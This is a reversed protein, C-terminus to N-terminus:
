DQPALEARLRGAQDALGTMTGSIETSSGAVADANELVTSMGQTIGAVDSRAEDMNRAIDATVANQEEVSAAVSGTRENLANITGGIGAISEVAEKTALQIEGVLGSIEDTARATETALAKVESAVIAFGRGADGARAAEITANLALLDTQGAIKHILEVVMGVRESTDALNGITQSTRDSSEVAERAITSSQTVQHNIERIAASLEEAAAAVSEVNTLANTAGTVANSSQARPMEASQGMETARDQCVKLAQSLSEVLDGFVQMKHGIGDAAHNIQRSATLFNGLMGDEVIRRFHRNKEVYHLCARSERIYADMRDIMENLALALTRERGEEVPVDLVRAEFDGRCISHCVDIMDDAYTPSITDEAPAAKRLMNFM